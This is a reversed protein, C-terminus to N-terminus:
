RGRRKRRMQPILKPPTDKGQEKAAWRTASCVKKREKRVSMAENYTHNAEWKVVDEPLSIGQLVIRVGGLGQV